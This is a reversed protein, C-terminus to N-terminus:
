LIKVSVTVETITIGQASLGVSIREPTGFPPHLCTSGSPLAALPTCVIGGPFAVPHGLFFSAWAAPFETTLNLFLPSALIEAGQGNQITFRDVSLITTTVDATSYGASSSGTGLLNILTLSAVEGKPEELMTLQPPNVMVSTGGSASEVVAGQDYAVNVSPEYTNALRVLIGSGEQTIYHTAFEEEFACAVVGTRNQYTIFENSGSGGPYTVTHPATAYGVANWWTVTMNLNSGGASLTGIKDSNSLNGFPCLLNLTSVFVVNVFMGGKASHSGSPNFSFTDREGYFVFSATPITTDSGGKNYTLSDDSGNVVFAVFGTDGGKWNITITDNNGSINYQVSNSNGNVTITFATNNENTVNWTDLNGNSACKGSGGTLCSSGNNWSPPHYLVRAVEYGATTGVPTTETLVQGPSPSGWPPVGQSGLTVPSSLALHIGPSEAAALITAQLRSLQDEVQLTHTVENQALEQPLPAIEFTAIFSVVLLLGLITAVASVQGRNARRRHRRIPVFRYV